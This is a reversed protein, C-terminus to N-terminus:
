LEVNTNARFTDAFMRTSNLIGAIDEKKMVSERTPDTVQGHGTQRLVQQICWTGYEEVSEAYKQEDDTMGVAIFLGFGGSPLIYWCDAAEDAYWIFINTLASETNAAIPANLNIRTGPSLTGAHSFIYFAMARLIRPAWPSDVPSKIMLECAFGSVEAPEDQLWPSSLGATVYTWYPRTPDPAYALISLQQEALDPDGPDATDRSVREEDLIISEAKLPPPPAYNEPSVYSPEGFLERYLEDRAKWAAILLERGAVMVRKQEAPDIPEGQIIRSSSREEDNRIGSEPERRAARKRGKDGEPKSKGGASDKRGGKKAM